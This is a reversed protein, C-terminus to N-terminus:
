AQSDVRNKLATKLQSYTRDNVDPLLAVRAKLDALTVALAVEEKFSTIWSRLINIEDVTITALAKFLPMRHNGDDLFQKFRIKNESNEDAQENAAFADIEAQTANRLVGALYVKPPSLSPGDPATPNEVQDLYPQAKVPISYANISMSEVRGGTKRYLYHAM